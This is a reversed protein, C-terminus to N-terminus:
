YKDGNLLLLIETLKDIVEQRSNDVCVHCICLQYLIEKGHQLCLDSKKPCLLNEIYKRREQGNFCSCNEIKDLCNTCNNM